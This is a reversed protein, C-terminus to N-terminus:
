DRYKQLEKHIIETLKCKEKYFDNFSKYKTAFICKVGKLKQWKGSGEIFTAKGKGGENGQNSREYLIWYKEDDKDLHECIM